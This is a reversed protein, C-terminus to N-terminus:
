SYCFLIVRNFYETHKVAEPSLLLLKLRSGLCLLHCTGYLSANDILFLQNLNDTGYLYPKDALFLNSLGQHFRYILKSICIELM